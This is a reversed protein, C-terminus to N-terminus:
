GRSHSRAPSQHRQTKAVEEESVDDVQPGHVVVQAGFVGGNEHLTGGWCFSPCIFARNVSSCIM